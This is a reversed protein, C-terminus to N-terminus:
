STEVIRTAFLRPVSSECESGSCVGASTRWPTETPRRCMPTRNQKPPRRSSPRREFTSSRTSPRSLLSSRTSTLCAPIPSSVSKRPRSASLLFFFLLPVCTLHSYGVLSSLSIRRSLPLTSRVKPNPFVSTDKNLRQFMGQPFSMQTSILDRVSPILIINTAPTSETIDLLRSTIKTRFIDVPLLDTKGLKLHPHASDVFPGLQLVAPLSILNLSLAVLFFPLLRLSLSPRSSVLIVVDPRATRIEEALADFPTYELDGALTYPGSATFISM